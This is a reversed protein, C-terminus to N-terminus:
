RWRYCQDTECAAELLCRMVSMWVGQEPALRCLHRAYGGASQSRRKTGRTQEGSNRRM